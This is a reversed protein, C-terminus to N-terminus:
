YGQYWTLIGVTHAHGRTGAATVHDTMQAQDGHDTAALSHTVNSIHSNNQTNTTAAVTQKNLAWNPLTRLTALTHLKELDAHFWSQSM